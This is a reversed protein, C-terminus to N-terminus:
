LEFFCQWQVMPNTKWCNFGSVWWIEKDHIEHHFSRRTGDLKRYIDHINMSLFRRFATEFRKLHERASVVVWFRLGGRDGERAADQQRTWVEADGSAAGLGPSPELTSANFFIRRSFPFTGLNWLSNPESIHSFIPFYPFCSGIFPNQPIRTTLKSSKNHNWYGSILYQCIFRHPQSPELSPKGFRNPFCFLWKNPSNQFTQHNWTIEPIHVLIHIYQSAVLRSRTKEFFAM